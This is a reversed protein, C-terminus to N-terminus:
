FYDMDTFLAMTTSVKYKEEFLLVTTDGAVLSVMVTMNLTVNGDERKDLVAAVKFLAGDEWDENTLEFTCKTDFKDPYYSVAAQFSFHFVIRLM